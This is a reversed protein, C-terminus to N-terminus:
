PLAITLRSSFRLERFTCLRRRRRSRIEWPAFRGGRAHAKLLVHAVAREDDM